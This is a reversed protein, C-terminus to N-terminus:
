IPWMAIYLQSEMPGHQAAALWVVVRAQEPCVAAAEQLARVRQSGETCQAARSVSPACRSGRVNVCVTPALVTLWWVWADCRSGSAHLGRGSESCRLGAAGRPMTRHRTSEMSDGAAVEEEAHAAM